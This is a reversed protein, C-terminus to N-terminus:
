APVTHNVEGVRRIFIENLTPLIEEFRRVEVQNQLLQTLVRAAEGPSQASFEATQGAIALNEAAVLTPWTGTLVIRYRNEKYMHKIEAVPGSLINQGQNVLVIDRCIEEVQEMRHTSFLIGTGEEQNLRYIEDKLLNANIPDLGSFPEDLIILPPRHMVTAVFQVKQTMGKSLEETKKQIWGIMQLREAWFRIAQIADHRSMGRLRAFYLLQEDVRMKKYIGREEPMYGILRRVAAHVPQGNIL